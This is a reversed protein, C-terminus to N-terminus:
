NRSVTEIVTVGARAKWYPSLRTTSIYTTIGARDYLKLLTNSCGEVFLQEDFREGRRLPTSMDKMVASLAEYEKQKEALDDVAKRALHMQLDKEREVQQELRSVEARTAAHAGQEIALEAEARARGRVAYAVVSALVVNAALLTAGAILAPARM